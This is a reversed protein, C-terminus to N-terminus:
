NKDLPQPMRIVIADIMEKHLRTITDEFFTGDPDFAFDSKVESAYIEAGPIGAFFNSNEHLGKSCVWVNKNRRDRAMALALEYLSNASSHTTHDTVVLLNYKM